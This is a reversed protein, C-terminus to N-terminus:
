EGHGKQMAEFASFEAEDISGNDDKDIATWQRSLEANGKVEVATLQGDKNQDLSQFAAETQSPQTEDAFSMTALPGATAFLLAACLGLTRTVAKKDLDTGTLNM